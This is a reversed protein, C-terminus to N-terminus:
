DKANDGGHILVEKNLILNEMYESNEVKNQIYSLSFQCILVGDINDFSIYEPVLWIGCVEFGQTFTEVLKETTDHFVTLYSDSNPPYYYIDVDVETEISDCPGASVSIPILDVKASPRIVPRTIDMAIVPVDLTNKLISIIAKKLDKVQM